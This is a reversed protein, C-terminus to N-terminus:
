GTLARRYETLMLGLGDHFADDHAVWGRHEYFRRARAHETPTSLRACAFGRENMADIAAAHLTAAVGRGWWPALVFLQWLHALGPVLARSTWDGGPAARERGPFFAIHGVPQDGDLALMAWTDPDDLLARTQESEAAVLPARWGAPAFAAYSDFGAQLHRNIAALDRGDARRLAWESM